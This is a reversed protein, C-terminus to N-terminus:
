NWAGFVLLPTGDADLMMLMGGLKFYYAVSGLATFYAQEQDMIGEPEACSELEAAVPEFTLTPLEAYTDTAEMVKEIQLDGEYGVTYDSCGGSGAAEGEGFIITTMSTPVVPSWMESDAMWLFALGWETGPMPVPTATNHTLLRQDEVTNAILQEGELRYETVEWLSSVYLASQQHLEEPGCVGYTSAPTQMRLEGGTTASYVGLFWNCGDFGAYREWFYIVTARTDPLKPLPEEAPGFYDLDWATAALPYAAVFEEVAAEATAEAETPSPAPEPEATGCGAAVVLVVTIVISLWISRWTKQDMLMEGKSEM